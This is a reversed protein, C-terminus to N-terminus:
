RTLTLLAATALAWAVFIALHLRAAHRLEMFELGVLLAKAAACALAVDLRGIAVACVAFLVLGFWTVIIVIM